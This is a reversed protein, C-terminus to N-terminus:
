PFQDLQIKKMDMMAAYGEPTATYAAMDVPVVQWSVGFRDTLWGCQEAEPVASLATWYRDIEAQDACEIMLSVGPGFTEPQEVGSDMVAFWQDFLEFEGFMVSETTVPGTPEPYTAVTGVVVDPFVSAYFDVAEAARNQAAAGFMLSPVIFPRLEGAPDTLILQWGVGYRDQVWGYYPSFPYQGLPMMVQGSDALANWLEELHSRAADDLSPDFNVMFSLAPTVPFEPGANIGIFRHGNLEFEVTLEKGAHEKQSDPLGHKPYHQVRTVRANPFVSTYFKAAEAANHDFWISPVIKQM